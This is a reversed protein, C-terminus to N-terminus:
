KIKNKILILGIGISSIMALKFPSRYWKKNNKAPQEVMDAPKASENKM